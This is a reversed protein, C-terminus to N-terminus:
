ESKEGEAKEGEAKEGEAKEGEAKEGETEAKESDEGADKIVSGDSIEIDITTNPGGPSDKTSTMEIEWKFNGVKEPGKYSGNEIKLVKCTIDDSAPHNLTLSITLNERWTEM